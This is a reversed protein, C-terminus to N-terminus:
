NAASFTPAVPGYKRWNAEDPGVEKSRAEEAAVEVEVESPPPEEAAEAERLGAMAEGESQWGTSECDSHGSM